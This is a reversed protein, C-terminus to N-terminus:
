TSRQRRPTKSSFLIIRWPFHVPMAPRMWPGLGGTSTGMPCRPVPPTPVAPLIQFIWRSIPLPRMPLSRCTIAAANDVRLWSLTPTTDGTPDPLYAILLPAQPALTDINFVTSTTQTVEAAIGNHITVRLRVSAADVPGLDQLASWILTITNAGSATEIWGSANGIQYDATNDLAPNGYDASISGAEVTINRWNDDGTAYEIRLMCTNSGTHDSVVVSLPIRGDGSDPQVPEDPSYALPRAKAFPREYTSGWRGLQDMFRVSLTHIGETLATTDIGSLDVSEEASDFSGDAPDLAIGNGPGPDADIFYEAGAITVPTYIEFPVQRIVGWRNQSDKVRLYLRHHGVPLSSVDIDDLELQEEATDFVGDAADVAVGCGEGPDTDIFYEAESIADAIVASPFAAFWFGMIAFFLISLFPKLRIGATTRDM